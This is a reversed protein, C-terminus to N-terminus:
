FIKVQPRNEFGVMFNRSDGGVFSITIEIGAADGPAAVSGDAAVDNGNDDVLRVVQLSTVGSALTVSTGADRRLENTGPDVSFIIQKPVVAAAADFQRGIDEYYRVLISDSTAGNTIEVTDTDGAFHTAFDYGAFTAADTYEGIPRYGALTLDYRVMQIAAEQLQSRESVDSTTQYSNRTSVFLVTLATLLLTLVAGAILLELLTFGHRNVM